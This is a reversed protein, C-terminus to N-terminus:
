SLLELAEEDRANFTASIASLSIPYGAEDLASLLEAAVLHRCIKPYPFRLLGRVMELIVPAPIGTPKSESM